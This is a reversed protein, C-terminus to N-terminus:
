TTELLADTVREIDERTTVFHENAQLVYSPEVVFVADDSTRHVLTHSIDVLSSSSSTSFSYAIDGGEVGLIECEDPDAWLGDILEIAGNAVAFEGTWTLVLDNIHYWDGNVRRYDYREADEADYYYDGDIEIADNVNQILDNNPSVCIVLGYADLAEQTYSRGYYEYIPEDDHVWDSAGRGIRAYTYHNDQCCGCIRRDHYETYSYDDGEYLTEGCDDCDGISEDEDEDDEGVERPLGYAYQLDHTAGSRDTLVWYEAGDIETLAGYTWGDLYPALLAGDETRLARLRTGEKLEHATYGAAKLQASLEAAETSLQYLRSYHQQKPFVIVRAICKDGKKLYALATDAEWGPISGYCQVPHPVARPSLNGRDRRMCSPPGNEYAWEIEDPDTTIHFTAPTSEELYLQMITSIQVDSLTYYRKLYKGLTTRVQRDQEGYRGDPTFAVMGARETSRHLFHEPHADILNEVGLVECLTSHLSSNEATLFQYDGVHFRIAERLSWHNYAAEASTHLNATHWLLRDLQYWCKHPAPINKYYTLIGLSPHQQADALTKIKLEHTPTM